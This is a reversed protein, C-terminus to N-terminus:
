KIIRLETIIERAPYRFANKEWKALGRWKVLWKGILNRWSKGFTVKTSILEFAGTQTALYQGKEFPKYWASALHARHTPDSWSGLYSFHPTEITVLAGNKGIRHIESMFSRIDEVHEIVHRSIVRDFSDTEIPWKGKNLDVVQDVGPYAFHDIGFAGDIKRPGCGVDIIKM